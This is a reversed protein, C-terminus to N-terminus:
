NKSFDRYWSPFHATKYKHTLTDIKDTEVIKRNCKTIAGVSHYIKNKMKNEENGHKMEKKKKRLSFCNCLNQTEFESKGTLLVVIIPILSVAGIAVGITTGVSLLM